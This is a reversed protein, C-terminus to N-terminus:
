RPASSGSGPFGWCRTSSPRQRTCMRLTHLTGSFINWHGAPGARGGTRAPDRSQQRVGDVAIALVAVSALMPGHAPSLMLAGGLMMGVLIALATGTEVLGNGGVLENAHLAQAPDFVQDSRVDDLAAGNPVAGGAAARCPARLVGRRSRWRPSRSSNQDLPILRTKEYKEALQGALASFLFFPLIFLAPALNTYLSAQDTSLGLQSTILVITANRFVNDNFAGLLQTAFFSRLPAAAAARVPLATSSRAGDTM